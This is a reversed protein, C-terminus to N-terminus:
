VTSDQILMSVILYSLFFAIKIASTVKIEAQDKATKMQELQKKLDLTAANPANSNVVPEKTAKVKASTSTSAKPEKDTAAPNPNTSSTAANFISTPEAPAFYSV